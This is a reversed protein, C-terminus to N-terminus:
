DRTMEEVRFVKRRSAADCCDCTLEEARFGKKRSAANGTALRCHAVHTLNTQKVFLSVVQKLSASSITLRFNDDACGWRVALDDSM